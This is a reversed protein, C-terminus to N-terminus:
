VSFFHILKLFLNYVLFIFLHIFLIFSRWSFREKGKLFWLIIQTGTKKLTQCALTWLGAFSTQNLKTLGVLGEYDSTLGGTRYILSLVM